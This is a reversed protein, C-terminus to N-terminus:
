WFLFFYFRSGLALARKQIWGLFTSVFKPGSLNRPRNKQVRGEKGDGFSKERRASIESKGRGEGEVLGGFSEAM